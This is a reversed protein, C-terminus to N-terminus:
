MKYYFYAFKKLLKTRCLFVFARVGVKQKFILKNKRFVGIHENKWYQPFDQNLLEVAFNCLDEVISSDSKRNDLKMYAHGKNAQFIFYTLFSLVTFEFVAFDNIKDRHALVFEISNKIEPLPLKERDIKTATISGQHVVQHYGCYDLFIINQALFLATLNFVNDEYIKGDPFRIHYKELFSRKYMKGAFNLKRLVCQGESNVPYSITDLIEESESVKYQGSVVMDRDREKATKYHKEIYDSSLYDDSDLFAIYEGQAHMLSFNRTHSIGSNKKSFGRFKDPYREVFQDIIIQSGDTSGDNILLVEYDSFTQKIISDLCKELYREANYVPVIVSVAPFKKSEM